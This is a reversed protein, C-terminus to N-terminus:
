KGVVRKRVQARKKVLGGARMRELQFFGANLRTVGPVREVADDKVFEAVRAAIREQEPKRRKGGPAPRIGVPPGDDREPRPM